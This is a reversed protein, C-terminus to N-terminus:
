EINGDYNAPHLLIAHSQSEFRAMYARHKGGKTKLSQSTSMARRMPRCCENEGILAEGVRSAKEEM